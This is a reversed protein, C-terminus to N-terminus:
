IYIYVYLWNATHQLVQSPGNELLKARFHYCSLNYFIPFPALQCHGREKTLGVIKKTLFTRMCSNFQRSQHEYIVRPTGRILSIMLADREM